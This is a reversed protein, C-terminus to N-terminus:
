KLWGALVMAVLVIAAVACVALVLKDERPMTNYETELQSGDAYPGFAQQMTRPHRYTVTDVLGCEELMRPYRRTTDPM